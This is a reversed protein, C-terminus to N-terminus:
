TPTLCTIVFAISRKRLKVVPATDKVATPWLEMEMEDIGERIRDIARRASPRRSYGEGSDALINGNRHILRWRWEGAQDRYVEIATPEPRLYNAPGVYERFGDIANEVGGRSAYGEGSDALINGNDHRLRWRYDGASDEYLEFEARSAVEEVPEFDEDEAPLEAESEILMTTAGLADRRVAQMGKQANHKRTYGEGSDAILNGNRHRLRWRWQD